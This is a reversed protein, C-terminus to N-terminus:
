TNGDAKEFFRLVHARREGRDPIALSGLTIALLTSGCTLPMLVWLKHLKLEPHYIGVIFTTVGLIIGLSLALKGGFASVRPTLMGLLMPIAVPPLFITFVTAMSNFLDPGQLVARMGLTLGLIILGAAVAGLRGVFLLHKESAGKRIFRKYFDNTVVASMANYEGALTSMTAAFLAAVLMGLMGAPLLTRCLLPYVEKTNELGPLFSHAVLGPTYFLPTGLLYLAAVLLGIKIAGKDDKTSYYRQALAWNTSYNLFLVGFYCIFYVCIYDTGPRTWSWFDAPIAQLAPGVGGARKLALFPLPLVSILLLILQTFDGVISVLLGGMCSYTLIIITCVIVTQHFSFGLGMSVVTGIAFLRIANDLLRTPLGLWMLGQRMGTGYREEIYELPSTNAVRRWRRAFLVGSLVAAPVAMWSLVFSVIGYKYALESHMVFAMASFSLMYFSAGSLWWPIQKGGGFYQAMSKTKRGFYVGIGVMLAFFAGIVAYDLVTVGAGITPEM